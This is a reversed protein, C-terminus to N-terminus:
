HKLRRGDKSFLAYNSIGIRQLKFKLSTALVGLGYKVSRHFQNILYGQFLTPVASKENSASTFRRALMENDFVFDNIKKLCLKELV